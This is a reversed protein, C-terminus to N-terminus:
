LWKDVNHILATSLNIYGKIRNKTKINKLMIKWGSVM